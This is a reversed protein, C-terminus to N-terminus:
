GGVMPTYLQFARAAVKVAMDAHLRTAPVVHRICLCSGSRWDVQVQYLSSRFHASVFSSNGCSCARRSARAPRRAEASRARAFTSRSRIGISRIGSVRDFIFDSGM